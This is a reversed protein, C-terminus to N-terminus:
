RWVRPAALDLRWKEDADRGWQGHCGSSTEWESWSAHQMGIGDLGATFNFDAARLLCGHEQFERPKVIMRCLHCSKGDVDALHRSRGGLQPQVRPFFFSHQIKRDEWAGPELSAPELQEM